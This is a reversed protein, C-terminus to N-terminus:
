PAYLEDLEGMRIKLEIRANEARDEFVPGREAKRAAELNFVTWM